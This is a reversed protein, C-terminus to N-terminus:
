RYAMQPAKLAELAAVAQDAKAKMMAAQPMGKEVATQYAWTLLKAQKEAEAIEAKSAGGAPAAAAMAPAAVPAPAAAVPTSVPAVPASFSPAPGGEAQAKLAQLQAVAQDARAKAAAAQPMGQAAATEAAWVLLKAQKEAEAIEAKSAGSAAAAVPVPAAAPTSVPAVAASFSPVAGGAKLAQVKAVAQDARAKAAAAQPMGKAVATEYAWVLLKAQKEAEAIEAKSAGGSPAVAAMAPAAAVPAAAVPTSVPMPPAPRGEAQAKLAALAAVAQDAKGKMMAAQPMGKAVATEYAWSLLKAQKEAEAIEAKSAALAVRSQSRDGSTSLSSPSVFAGLQLQSLTACGVAGVIVVPLRSTSRVM